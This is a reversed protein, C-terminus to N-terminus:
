SVDLLFVNAKADPALIQDEALFPEEATKVPGIRRAAEVGHPDRDTVAAIPQVSKAGRYHVGPVSLEVPSTGSVVQVAKVSPDFLQYPAGGDLRIEQPAYSGAIHIELRETDTPHPFERGMKVIAHLDGDLSAGNSGRPEAGPGSVPPESMRD